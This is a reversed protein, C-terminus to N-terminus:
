TRQTGEATILTLVPLGLVALRGTSTVPPTVPATALGDRETGRVQTRPGDTPERRDTTRAHASVNQMCRRNRERSSVESSPPNAMTARADRAPPGYRYPRWHTSRGGPRITTKSSACRSPGKPTRKVAPSQAVANTAALAQATQATTPSSAAPHAAHVVNASAVEGRRM